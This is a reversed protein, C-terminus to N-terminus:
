NHASGGSDVQLDTVMQTFLSLGNEILSNEWKLDDIRFAALLKRRSPHRLQQTPSLGLWWTMCNEARLAKILPFPSITGFEQTISAWKINKFRKEVGSQMGGRVSYALGGGSDLGTIKNGFRRKLDPFIEGKIDHDVLLTDIGAKGLGTHLDIWNCNTISGLSEELWKLFVEPGKEMKEGGFQLGRPRTYQGEAFAQKTENYGNKLTYLYAKLVFPELPKPLKKINLFPSLKAYGKPEGSYEDGIPLFNRNLDVNTENVRRLWAMGWPNIVHIFAIATDSALDKPETLTAIQSLQIASGAFGEVGHVGATSLLLKTANKSGVWVTDIALKEEYPGQIGLDLRQHEVAFGRDRLSDIAVVLKGTAAAYDTSWFM